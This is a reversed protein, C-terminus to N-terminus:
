VAEFPVGCTLLRARQGPRRVLCGEEEESSGLIPLMLVIQCRQCAVGDFRIIGDVTNVGVVGEVFSSM